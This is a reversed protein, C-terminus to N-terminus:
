LSLRGRRRQLATFDVAEMWVPAFGAERTLDALVQRAGPFLLTPVDVLLLPELTQASVAGVVDQLSSLGAYAVDIVFLEVGNRRDAGRCHLILAVEFLASGDAVQRADVDLDLTLHPTDKPLAHVGPAGPVALHVSKVYQCVIQVRPSLAAGGSLSAAADGDHM